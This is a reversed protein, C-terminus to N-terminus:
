GNGQEKAGKLAEIIEARSPTGPTREICALLGAAHVKSPRASMVLRVCCDLCKLDYINGVHECM